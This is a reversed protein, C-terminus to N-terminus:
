VRSVDVEEDDLRVIPAADNRRKPRRRLALRAISKLVTLHDAAPRRTM